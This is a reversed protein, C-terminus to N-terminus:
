PLEHQVAVIVSKCPRGRDGHTVKVVLTHHEEICVYCLGSLM